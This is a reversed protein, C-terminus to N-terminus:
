FTLRLKQKKIKYEKWLAHTLARYLYTSLTGADPNWKYLLRFFHFTAAQLKDDFTESYPAATAAALKMLLHKYRRWLEEGADRDGEKFRKLLGAEDENKPM